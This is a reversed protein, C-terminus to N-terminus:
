GTVRVALLRRTSDAGSTALIEILYDGPPLPGLGFEAQFSSPTAGPGPPPLAAM